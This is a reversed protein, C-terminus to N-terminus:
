GRVKADFDSSGDGKRVIRIGAETVQDMQQLKKLFEEPNDNLNITGDREEEEKKEKDRLEAEEYTILRYVLEMKYKGKPSKDVRESDWELKAEVTGANSKHGQKALWGFTKSVLQGFPTEVGKVKKLSRKDILPKKFM